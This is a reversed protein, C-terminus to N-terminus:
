HRFSDYGSNSGSGNTLPISGRIRIQVFIDRIGLETGGGGGM